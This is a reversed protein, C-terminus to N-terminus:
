PKEKRAAETGRLGNITVGQRQLRLVSHGRLGKVRRQLDTWDVFAAKQREQLLREATVVGVGDLRELEARTARNLDLAAAAPAAMACVAAVAMVALHRARDPWM